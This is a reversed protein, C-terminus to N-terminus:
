EGDILSRECSSDVWEGTKGPVGEYWRFASAQLDGFQEPDVGLVGKGAGHKFMQETIRDSVNFTNARNCLSKV